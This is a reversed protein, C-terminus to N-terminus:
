ENEHVQMFKFFKPGHQILENDLLKSMELKLILKDRDNMDDVLYKGHGNAGVERGIIICCELDLYSVLYIASECHYQKACGDTHYWMNTLFPAVCFKKPILQPLTPINKVTTRNYQDSEDSLDSHLQAMPITSPKFKNFQELSVGEM